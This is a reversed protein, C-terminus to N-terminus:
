MSLTLSCNGWCFSRMFHGFLWMQTLRVGTEVQLWNRWKGPCLTSRVEVSKVVLCWAGIHFSRLINSFNHIATFCSTIHCIKAYKGRIFSYNISQNIFFIFFSLINEIFWATEGEKAFVELRLCPHNYWTKPHIRLYRARLNYKIDM